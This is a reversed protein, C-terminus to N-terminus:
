TSMSLRKNSTDVKSVLRFRKNNMEVKQSEVSGVTAEAKPQSLRINSKKAQEKEIRLMCRSEVVM